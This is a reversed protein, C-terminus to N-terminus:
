ESGPEAFTGGCGPQAGPRRTHRCAPGPGRVETKTPCSARTSLAAVRISGEHDRCGKAEPLPTRRAPRVHLEHEYLGVRASIRHDWPLSMPLALGPWFLLCLM